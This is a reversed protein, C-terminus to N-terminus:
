SGSWKIEVASFFDNPRYNSNPQFNAFHDKIEKFWAFIQLLNYFWILLKWDFIYNLSCWISLRESLPHCIDHVSLAWFLALSDCNKQVMLLSHRFLFFDHAISSFFFRARSWITSLLSSCVSFMCVCRAAVTILTKGNWQLHCPDFGFRIVISKWIWIWWTIIIELRAFCCDSSSFNLIAIHLFILVHAVGSLSRLSFSDM